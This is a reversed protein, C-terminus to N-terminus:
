VKHVQHVLGAEEGREGSWAVTRGTPVALLLNVYETLVHLCDVWTCRVVLDNLWRGTGIHTREGQM